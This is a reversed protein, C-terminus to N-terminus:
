RIASLVEEGTLDPLTYDLTVLDPKRHLNDLFQQGNDFIEIEFDPNLSLVYKLFMSYSPDDEVVFIRFSEQNYM